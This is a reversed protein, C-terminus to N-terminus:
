SLENIKNLIKDSIFNKYNVWWNVSRIQIQEIKDRDGKFLNSMENLFLPLEDWNKLLPFPPGGVAALTKDSILFDHHLSIPICGLELADYLRITEPSNGAPCPAFISEEMIASYLGINYGGAFGSSPLLFIKDQCHKAVEGFILRENQYSSSNDLWGLFSALTNRDTSRKLKKKDRPGIGARYGNPAWMINPHGSSTILNEFYYNRIVLNCKEYLDKNKDGLEDGMHYLIVKKGARQAKSIFDDCIQFLELYIVYSSNPDIYNLGVCYPVGQFLVDRIFSTELAGNLSDASAYIM